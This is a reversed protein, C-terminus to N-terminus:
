AISKSNYQPPKQASSHFANMINYILKKLIFIVTWQNKVIGQPSVIFISSIPQEQDFRVHNISRGHNWTLQNSEKM